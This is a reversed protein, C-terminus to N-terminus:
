FCHWDAALKHGGDLGLVPYKVASLQMLLVVVLKADAGAKLLQLFIAHHLQCQRPSKSSALQM